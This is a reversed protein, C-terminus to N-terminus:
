ICLHDVILIKEDVNHDRSNHVKIKKWLLFHNGCNGVICKIKRWHFITGVIDEDLWVLKWELSAGIVANVKLDNKLMTKKYILLNSDLGSSDQLVFILLITDLSFDLFLMLWEKSSSAEIITKEFKVCNERANLVVKRKLGMYCCFIPNEINKVGESLM